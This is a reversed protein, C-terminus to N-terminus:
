HVPRAAGLTLAYATAWNRVVDMPDATVVCSCLNLRVVWDGVVFSARYRAFGDTRIFTVANSFGAIRQMDGMAGRACTIALTRRNFDDADSPSAFQFAEAGYSDNGVKWGKGYASRLGDDSMIRSWAARDDTEPSHRVYDSPNTYISLGLVVANESGPLAPSPALNPQYQLLIQPDNGFKATAPPGLDRLPRMCAPSRDTLQIPNPWTTSVPAGIGLVTVTPSASGGSSKGSQNHAVAVGIVAAVVVAVVLLPATRRGRGSHPPIAFPSAALPSGAIV